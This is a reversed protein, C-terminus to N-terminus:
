NFDLNIFKEFFLFHSFSFTKSKNVFLCNKTLFFVGFSLKFFFSTKFHLEFLLFRFIFVATRM